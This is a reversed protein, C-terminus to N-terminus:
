DDFYRIHFSQIPNYAISKFLTARDDTVTSQSKTWIALLLLARLTFHADNGARHLRGFPCKLRHLLDELAGTFSFVENAIWATDVIGYFSSKLDFRLRRLALPDRALEFGVPIINRSRPIIKEISRLIDTTTIKSSEEFPFSSGAAFNYTSVINDNKPAVDKNNHPISRLKYTDLIALGVEIATDQIQGRPRITNSNEFDIAVLIM